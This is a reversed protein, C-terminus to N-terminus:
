YFHCNAQPINYEHLYEGHGTLHVRIERNHRKLQALQESIQKALNEKSSEVLPWMRMQWFTYPSLVPKSATLKKKAVNAYESAPDGYKFRLILKNGVASDIAYTKQQFSYYSKGSHTMEVFCQGLLSNLTLNSEPCDIVEIELNLTSFKLADRKQTMERIDAFLTVNHGALLRAIDYPSNLSSWTYISNAKDFKFSQLHNDKYKFAAEQGKVIDLLKNVSDGYKAVSTEGSNMEAINFECFFPFSWHRFANVAQEYREAIMNVQVRNQLENIVSKLHAAPVSLSSNDLRIMFSILENQEIYHQIREYLRYMTDIASEMRRFIAEIEASVSMNRTVGSLGNSMRNLLEKIQWRKFDIHVLSNSELSSVLQALESNTNKALDNQIWNITQQWEFLANYQERNEEIMERIVAHHDKYETILKAVGLFRKTKEEKSNATWEDLKKQAEDVKEKGTERSMVQAYKLKIEYKERSESLAANIRAEISARITAQGQKQKTSDELSDKTELVNLDCLIQSMRQENLEKLFKNVETLAIAVYETQRTLPTPRVGNNPVLISHIEVGAQQVLWGIIAIPADLFTLMKCAIGLGDLIIKSRLARDLDSDREKVAQQIDANLEQQRQEIDNELSAIFNHADDIKQKLTHKFDDRYMQRINPQQIVSQWKNLNTATLPELFARIDVAVLNTEKAAKLRFSLSAIAVRAYDLAQRNEKTLGEEEQQMYYADIEAIVNPLLHQTSEFTSGSLMLQVREVLQKVSFEASNVNSRFLSLSFPRHLLRSVKFERITTERSSLFALYSTKLEYMSSSSSSLSQIKEIENQLKKTTSADNLTSNVHGSAARRRSYEILDGNKKFGVVLRSRSYNKFKDWWERCIANGYLGGDGSLGPSGNDGKLLLHSAAKEEGNNNNLTLKTEHEELIASGRYGAPGGTGGRGADGGRTGAHGYKKLYATFYGNSTTTAHYLVTSGESEPCERKCKNLDTRSFNACVSHPVCIQLNGQCHWNLKLAKDITEIWARCGDIDSYM